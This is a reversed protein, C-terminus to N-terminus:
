LKIYLTKEEDFNRLLLRYTGAPYGIEARYQNTKSDWKSFM